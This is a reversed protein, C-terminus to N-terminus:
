GAIVRRQADVRVVHDALTPLTRLAQRSVREYHQVFRELQPRTMASREPHEAQLGEEAKLGEEAQWRWDVVHEFGPPQLFWLTDCTRWLAPYDRALAANCHSRWTADRDEDRELANIPAVLAAQAQAPTGLCWGEFIVLDVPGDLRPWTSEAARDDALKDFRPLAVPRGERLAQLTHLALPLDHTGPPGRTVLLPHVQRALAQRAARTLYFDDLSLVASRLGERRAAQALQAALTSKGTGQLASLGWVPVAQPLARASRLAASVLSDPFGHTPHTM